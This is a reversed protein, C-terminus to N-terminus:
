VLHLSVCRRGLRHIQGRHPTSSTCGRSKTESLIYVNFNQLCQNTTTMHLDFLSFRSRSAIQITDGDRILVCTKRIRMGNLLLGNSSMDQCSVM